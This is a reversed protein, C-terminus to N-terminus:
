PSGEGNFVLCTVTRFIGKITHIKKTVLDGIANIDSGSVIAIADYPGTVKDAVKVHELSKLGNMVDQTRGVTIKILVYAKAM